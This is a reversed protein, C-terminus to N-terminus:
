KPLWETWKRKGQELIDPPDHGQKNILLSRSLLSKSMSLGPACIHLHKVHPCSSSTQQIPRLIYFVCSRLLVLRQQTGNAIDEEERM